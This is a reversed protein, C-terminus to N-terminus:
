YKNSVIVYGIVNGNNKYIQMEDLNHEKGDWPDIITYRGNQKGIVTAWHERIEGSSSYGNAHILVPNGLLLQADIALFTEPESCDVKYAGHVNWIISQGGISSDLLIRDPTVLSKDRISIATALAYIACSSEANEFSCGNDKQSYRYISNYSLKKSVNKIKSLKSDFARSDSPNNIKPMGHSNVPLGARKAALSYPINAANKAAILPHTAGIRSSISSAGKPARKRVRVDTDNPIINQEKSNDFAFQTNQAPLQAANENSQTENPNIILSM